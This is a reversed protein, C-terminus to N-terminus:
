IGHNKTPTNCTLAASCFLVSCFLLEELASPIAEDSDDIHRSIYEPLSTADDPGTQAERLYKTVTGYAIAEEGLTVVLDDHIVQALWGKMNLYLASSKHDVARFDRVPRNQHRFVHLVPRLEPNPEDVLYQRLHYKDPHILMKPFEEAPGCNQEQTSISCKLPVGLLDPWAPM